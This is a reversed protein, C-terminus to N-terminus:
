AASALAREAVHKTFEVLIARIRSEDKFSRAKLFTSIDDQHEIVAAQIDIVPAPKAPEHDPPSQDVRGIAKEEEEKRIRQREAELREAEDQKSKEIRAKVLMEFDDPAKQIIQQLDPFLISHRPECITRFLRIKERMAQALMSAGAKGNALEANVADRLSALTRKSKMAGGFDPMPHEFRLGHDRLESNLATCYTAFERQADIVLRTKILEKQEKVAKELKLGLADFKTAYLELTRVAESVTSIQDVVERAKLKLTKAAERSFKATAEGNAFDDDTTLDTKAGALFADFKPTVEDLNCLSLSGTVNIIVAPLQMIADPAPPAIVEAPQYNGMDIAFQTWGYVIRNRMDQDSEYWVHMSEALEGADNWATAMFLCKEAGSVMLQQEMQARYAEPLQAAQTIGRLSDNLTKHEFCVSEDMSLGDFSASLKGESGTVPYLEQGIIKEALPRALAEFRHGDNFRRQTAADIEPTIGTVKIRLLNDRTQYPSVGLMAPAESAPFHTARFAHWDPSGQILAHIKM